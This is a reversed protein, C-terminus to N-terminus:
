HDVSAILMDDVYLLLIIGVDNELCKHFVCNDYSSRLYENKMMFEDFPLYWQSPSQKLGYLSKKLLCVKQEDGKKVYGKPQTM